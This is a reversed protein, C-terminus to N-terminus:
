HGEKSLAKMFKYGGFLSAFMFVGGLIAQTDTVEDVLNYLFITGFFVLVCIAAGLLRFNIKM